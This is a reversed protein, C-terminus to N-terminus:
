RGACGAAAYDQKEKRYQSSFLSISQKLVGMQSKLYYEDEFMAYHVSARVFIFILPTIKEYPIGLKGELSKAYQTYREDVGEFFKKGYERYKPHTYIQYMLRYKKGHERATWYPIEDIFRWLDEEDAPAKTMFDDEVKSMCYETSKIILDDLNDFYLYLTAVSLGCAKAIAKIGVSSFGNEAYCDFCKEMIEIQKARRAEENVTRLLNEGERIIFRIITLIIFYKAQITLIGIVKEAGDGQGTHQVASGDESEVIGKGATRCGSYCSAGSTLLYQVFQAV